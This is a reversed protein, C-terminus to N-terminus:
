KDEKDSMYEAEMDNWRSQLLSVFEDKIGIALDKTEAYEDVIKVVLDDFDQKTVDKLRHLNKSVNKALKELDKKLDATLAVGHKSMVLWVAAGAALIGGLILGKKFVNDM